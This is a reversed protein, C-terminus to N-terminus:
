DHKDHAMATVAEVIRAARIVQAEDAPMPRSEIAEGFDISRSPGTRAIRTPRTLTDEASRATTALAAGAGTSRSRCDATASPLRQRSSSNWANTM